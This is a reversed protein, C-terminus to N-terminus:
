AFVTKCPVWKELGKAWGPQCFYVEKGIYNWLHLHLSMKKFVLVKWQRFLCSPGCPFFIFSVFLFLCAFFSWWAMIKWVKKQMQEGVALLCVGFVPLAEPVLSCCGKTFWSDNKWQLLPGFQRAEEEGILSFVQGSCLSVKGATAGALGWPM